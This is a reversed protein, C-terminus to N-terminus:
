LCTRSLKTTYVGNRRGFDTNVKPFFTSPSEQNRVMVPINQLLQATRKSTLFTANKRGFFLVAGRSQTRMKEDARPQMLQSALFKNGYPQPATTIGRSMLKMSSSVQDLSQVDHPVLNTIGKSVCTANCLHKLMGRSFQLVLKWHTAISTVTITM